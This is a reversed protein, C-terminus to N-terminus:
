IEGVERFDNFCVSSLKASIKMTDDKELNHRKHQDSFSHHSYMFLMSGLHSGSGSMTYGLVVHFWSPQWQWVYNLMSCCPVLIVAVSM